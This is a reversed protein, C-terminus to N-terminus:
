GKNKGLNPELVDLSFRFDAFLQGVWLFTKTNKTNIKM